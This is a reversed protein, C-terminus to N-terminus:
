ILFVQSDVSLFDWVEISSSIIPIQLLEQFTFNFGSIIYRPLFSFITYSDFVIKIWTKSQNLLLSSRLVSCPQFQNLSMYTLSLLKSINLLSIYALYIFWYYQSSRHYEINLSWPWSSLINYYIIITDFSIM